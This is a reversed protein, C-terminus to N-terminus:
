ALIKIGKKEFYKELYAIGEKIASAKKEYSIEPKSKKYLHKDLEYKSYQMLLIEVLNKATDEPKIFCLLANLAQIGTIAKSVKTKGVLKLLNEKLESNDFTAEYISLIQELEEVEKRSQEKFEKNIHSIYYKQATSYYEDKAMKRADDEDHKKLLEMFKSEYDDKLGILTNEPIICYGKLINDIVGKKLSYYKEKLAKLEIKEAKKM